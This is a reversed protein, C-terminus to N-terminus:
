AGGPDLHLLCWGPGAFPTLGTATVPGGARALVTRALGLHVACVVDARERALDLVPCRRLRVATGDPRVEPDYGLRAFHAGLAALQGERAAAPEDAAVGAATPPTGALAVAAETAASGPAALDRGYGALLVRSLHERVWREGDGPEVAAAYLTHPRGRAHRNEVTREVLGTDVLAALHERATSVGLGVEAALDQVTVPVAARRLARLLAARSPVALVRHRVADDAPGPPPPPTPGLRTM